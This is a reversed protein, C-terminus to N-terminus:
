FWKGISIFPNDYYNHPGIYYQRIGTSFLWCDGRERSWCSSGITATAGFEWKHGGIKWYVSLGENLHGEVVFGYDFSNESNAIEAYAYFITFSGDFSRTPGFILGWIDVSVFENCAPSEYGDPCHPNILSTKLWFASAQGSIFIFFTLLLIYKM